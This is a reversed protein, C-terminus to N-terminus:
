CMVTLPISYLRYISSCNMHNHSCKYASFKHNRFTRRVDLIVDSKQFADASIAALLYPGRFIEM